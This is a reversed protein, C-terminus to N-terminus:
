AGFEGASLVATRDRVARPLSSWILLADLHSTHNSFYVRQCVDPQSSIWRVSAGSLVRAIAALTLGAAECVASRGAVQASAPPRTTLHPDAPSLM